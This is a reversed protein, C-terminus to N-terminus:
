KNTIAIYSVIGGIVALIQYVTREVKLRNIKNEFKNNEDKLEQIKNEDSKIITDKASIIKNKTDLEADQYKLTARQNNVLADYTEIQSLLSDKLENCEKRKVHEKNVSDVQPITLACLTDKGIVIKKPYGDQCIVLKTM